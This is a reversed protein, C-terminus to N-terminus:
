LVEDQHIWLHEIIVFEPIFTALQCNLSNNLNLSDDIPTMWKPQFAFTSSSGGLLDTLKLVKWLNKSWVTKLFIQSHRNWFSM